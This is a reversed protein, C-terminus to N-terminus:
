WCRTPYGDIRLHEDTALRRSRSQPLGETGAIQTARIGASWVVTRSAIHRGDALLVSKPTAREVLTRTLVEVGRRELVRQAYRGLRAPFTPLLRDTGEVLV